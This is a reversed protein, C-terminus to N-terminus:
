KKEKPHYKASCRCNPALKQHLVVDRSMKELNEFYEGTSFITFGEDKPDRQIYNIREISPSIPLKQFDKDKKLINGFFEILRSIKQIQSGRGYEKISSCKPSNYRKFLEPEVYPVRVFGLYILESAPDVKEHMQVIGYVCKNVSDREIAEVNYHAGHLIERVGACFRGVQLARMRNEMDTTQLVISLSLHGAIMVDAAEDLSL